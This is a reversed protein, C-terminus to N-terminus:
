KIENGWMDIEVDPDDPMEYSLINFIQEVMMRSLVERDMRKIDKQGGYKIMAYTHYLPHRYSYLLSDSFFRILSKDNNDDSLIKLYKSLNGQPYSPYENHIMECIEARTAGELPLMSMAKLIIESNNYKRMPGRLYATEFSKKMTDSIEEVLMKLADSLNDETIYYGRDFERKTTNNIGNVLCINLCIKHCIAPLGNSYFCIGRSIQPPFNLNLMKSGKEIILGLTTDPACLRM